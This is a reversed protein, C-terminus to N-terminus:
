ARRALRAYMLGGTLDMAAHVAMAIYLTGSLWVLVQLGLAVAIVTFMALIGQRSHLVGFAVASIAAGAWYSGTLAALLATQVGRWTIEECVGALISILLWWWREEATGPMYLHIAKDGRSIARRVIPVDVVTSAIYIALAVALSWLLSRGTWQFLQIGQVAATFLSILGYGATYVAGTKYQSLRSPPSGPRRLRLAEAIAQAPLAVTFILLHYYGLLNVAPVFPFPM